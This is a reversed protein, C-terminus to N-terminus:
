ELVEALKAELEEGRLGKAIIVGNEDFLFNSPIFQIVYDGSVNHEIDRVHIWPLADEEVANLWAEEDRDVSIGIIELGAANFKEYAAKVYPNEGRCPGCWSAWFDILTVKHQKIVEELNIDKGDATQLTFDIFPQGVQVRQNQEIYKQINTRFTSETTFGDAVEKVTEFEIDAKLEDLLYHALYSDSHSKIYDVQCDTYEEMSTQIKEDLEPIKLTDETAYAEEMESYLALISAEMPLLSEHFAMLENMTPCGDVKWNPMDECDGTITTNQNETFFPFVGCKDAPSFKITYLMQPDDFDATMVVQNGAFVASDISVNKGDVEKVLYVTKQDANDLNLTVKFQKTKECGCLILTAAIITLILKKM